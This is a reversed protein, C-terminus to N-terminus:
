DGAAHLRHRQVDDLRHHPRVPRRHPRPQGDRGRVDANHEDGRQRELEARHRRGLQRRVSGTAASVAGTWVHSAPVTRSKSSNSRVDPRSGRRGPVKAQRACDFPPSFANTTRAPWQHDDKFNRPCGGRRIGRISRDASRAENLEAPEHEAALAPLEVRLDLLRGLRRHQQRRLRGSGPVGPREDRASVVFHIISFDASDVTGNGDMDGLLRFFDFTSPGMGPVGGLVLSYDGDGISHTANNVGAGTFSVTWVTGDPSSSLAVNPASTTGDIGSLTFNSTTLTVAQSFSYVVNEVMSHQHATLTSDVYSLGSNLVTSALTPAPAM